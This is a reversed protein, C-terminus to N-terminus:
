DREKVTKTQRCKSNMDVLPANVHRLNKMHCTNARDISLGLARTYELRYLLVDFIFSFIFAQMGSLFRVDYMISSAGTLEDLM